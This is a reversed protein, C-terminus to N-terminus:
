RRARAATSRQKPGHRRGDGASAVNPLGMFGRRAYETANRGQLWDAPLSQAHGDVGHVVVPMALPWDPPLRKWFANLRDPTRALTIVRVEAVDALLRRREAEQWTIGPRDIRRNVDQQRDYVWRQWGAGFVPPHQQIAAQWHSRCGCGGAAILPTVAALDVPTPSQLSRLWRWLLNGRHPWPVRALSALTPDRQAPAPPPVTEPHKYHRYKEVIAAHVPHDTDLM